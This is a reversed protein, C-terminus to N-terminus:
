ILEGTEETHYGPLEALKSRFRRSRLTALLASLRPDASMEDRFCFDYNKAHVSIFHLGAEESCLRVCAGADGWGAKICSAMMRHDLAIRKPASRSGLVEDQLQRAGSGDERGIWRARTRLLSSVSSSQLSPTIAIGEEWKAVHILSCNKGLSARAAKRNASKEESRGLHMGAVHVKGECLLQLSERSNRRLVIMRFQFQRHFEAALLHASPDCGAVVLTRDALEPDPNEVHSQDYVADHWDLQTSDEAIPYSLTKGNVSAYWYRPNPTNPIVGWEISGTSKATAGFLEEVSADLARALALAAHVSPALRGSEIASIGARSLGTRDALEQQSWGTATRKLRVSNSQFDYSVM